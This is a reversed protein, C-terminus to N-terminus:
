AELHDLDADATLVTPGEYSEIVAPPADLPAYRPTLRAVYAEATVLGSLLMRSSDAIARYEDAQVSTVSALDADTRFPHAGLGQHQELVTVVAATLLDMRDVTDVHDTGRTIVNVVITFIGDLETEGHEDARRMREYAVTPVVTALVTNRPDIQHLQEVDHLEHYADAAPPAVHDVELGSALCTQGLTWPLWLKLTAEAAKRVTRKTIVDM